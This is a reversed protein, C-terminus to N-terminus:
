KNISMKLQEISEKLEDIKKYNRKLYLDHETSPFKGKKFEDYIYRGIKKHTRDIEGNLKNIELHSKGTEIAKSTQGVINNYWKGAKEKWLSKNEEM